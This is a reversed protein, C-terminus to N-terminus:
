LSEPALRILSLQVAYSTDKGQKHRGYSNFLAPESYTCRNLAPLQTEPIDAGRARRYAIGGLDMLVRGPTETEQFFRSEFLTTFSTEVEYNPQSICPGIALHLDEPQLGTYTGITRIVEPIIEAQLGRWGAHVAAVVGPGSILVPVCDATKVALWLGPETTILADCEEYLGSTTAMAIRNGHVQRMHAIPGLRETYSRVTHNSDPFTHERTGFMHQAHPLGKPATLFGSLDPASPTLAPAMYNMM